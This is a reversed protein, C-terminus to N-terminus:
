DSDNIATLLEDLFPEADLQYIQIADEIAYFPAVACGPCAMRRRQFVVATAPWRKLLEEINMAAVAARDLETEEVGEGYQM